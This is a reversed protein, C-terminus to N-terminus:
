WNAVVILLDTVGVIGDGDLDEPCSLSCSGWHGMVQLIDEVNVLGDGNVDGAVQTGNIIFMGDGVNFGSNGSGDFATVRLKGEHTSLDPVEWVYFGSSELGTAVAQWSLGADISLDISVSNVAVDDDTIWLVPVQQDPEFLQGGTPTQLHATPANGGLHKPIHMCICHMVGASTVINECPVSIITKDPCAVQWATIAEANHQTVSSNTYSPVLVLDNCIVSNAYTYHTWSVRRAPTRVVTYGLFKLTASTTDCIVDQVSGSNYPWDSVICTTDSAWCMWMDIHQTSDVSTPFADTITVNLNQFDQWYARIAAESMGGNENSILETSWGVNGANLHFNGGGHVLPLEYVKHGLVSGLYSSFANDNPRPRNYTHDVIARCEGEYIYRPGYDRIWITDTTRVVFIVRSTDGGYSSIQSLASSEESTTDVAIIADANGVTTINAAMRAVITKWSSSGEWALLIADMPEYEAVCHINGIPPSTAGRPPAIPNRAVMRAEESTLNRPIEAGEPYPSTLLSLTVLCLTTFM